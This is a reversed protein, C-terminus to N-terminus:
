AGPVLAPRHAPNDGGSGLPEQIFEVMAAHTPRPEDFWPAFAMEAGESLMPFARTFESLRAARARAGLRGGRCLRGDITTDWLVRYRERLLNVVAPDQDVRPLEKEYGFAPDVM